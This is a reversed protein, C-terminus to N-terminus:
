EDDHASKIRPDREKFLYIAPDLGAIVSLHKVMLHFELILFLIEDHGPKNDRGGVETKNANLM